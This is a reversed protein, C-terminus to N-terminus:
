PQGTITGKGELFIWLRLSEKREVYSLPFWSNSSMPDNHMSRPLYPQSLFYLATVWRQLVQPVLPPRKRPTWPLRDEQPAPPTRDEQLAPLLRKQLRPPAYYPCRYYTDPRGLRPLLIDLVNGEKIAEKVM